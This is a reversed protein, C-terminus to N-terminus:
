ERETEAPALVIALPVSPWRSFSLALTALQLRCPVGPLLPGAAMANVHGFGGSPLKVLAIPRPEDIGVPEADCSPMRRNSRLWGRRTPKPCCCWARGRRQPDFM